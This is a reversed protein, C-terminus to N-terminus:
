RATTRPPPRNRPRRRSSACAPADSAQPAPRRSSPRRARSRRRPARRAAPRVRQGSDAALGLQARIHAGAFRDLDLQQRRRDTEHPTRQHQPQQEDEQQRERVPRRLLGEAAVARRRRRRSSPSSFEVRPTTHRDRRECCRTCCSSASRRSRTRCARGGAGRLRARHRAPLRSIPVPRRSRAVRRLRARDAVARLPRPRVGDHGPLRRDLWRQRRAPLARDVVDHPPGSRLAESIEGIRARTDPLLANILTSKGM